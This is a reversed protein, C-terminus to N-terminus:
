DTNRDATKRDAATSEKRTRTTSIRPRPRRRPRTPSETCACGSQVISNGTSESGFDVKCRVPMPIIRSCEGTKNIVATQLSGPTAILEDLANGNSYRTDADTPLFGAIGNLPEGATSNRSTSILGDDGLVGDQGTGGSIWDHGYGGVIDDDQGEGFLVDSGTMGFIIDDGSEGHILDAAGNDSPKGVPTAQGAPTYSGGNFDAGGLTYDLQKMARPIIQLGYADDYNFSLFVDNADTPNTGSAGGKVLRYLNANDGMMFDADRAHGNVLNTTIEHTVPDETADGINNRSTDIGAGGFMTDSDDPRLQEGILGLKAAKVDDLGFLASSGGIM